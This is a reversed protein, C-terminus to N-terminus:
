DYKVAAAHMIQAATQGGETYTALVSKTGWPTKDLFAQIDAASMATTDKLYKDELVTNKDFARQTVSSNTGDVPEEIPAASCAALVGFLAIVFPRLVNRSAM